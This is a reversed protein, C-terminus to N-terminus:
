IEMNMAKREWWDKTQVNLKSLRMDQAQLYADLEQIFLHEDFDRLLRITDQGSSQSLAVYLNFLTLQGGM